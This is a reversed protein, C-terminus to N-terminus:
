EDALPGRNRRSPRALEDAYHRDVEALLVALDSVPMANVKEIVAGLDVGFKSPSALKAGVGSVLEDLVHELDPRTLNFLSPRLDDCVGVFEADTLRGEAVTTARVSARGQAYVHNLDRVVQVIQDGAMSAIKAVAGSHPEPKFEQDAPDEADDPLLCQLMWWRHFRGSSHLDYFSNRLAAAVFRFETTTFPKTPM